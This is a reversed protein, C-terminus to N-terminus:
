RHRSNYWINCAWRYRRLRPFLGLLLFTKLLGITGHSQIKRASTVVPTSRITFRLGNKRGYRRLARSLELEEGAYHRESFGGVAQFIDKPVFFYCGAANSRCFWSHNWVATLLRLLLPLRCDFQIRAGGGCCGGTMLLNLTQKLLEGSVVTDADIFILYRGEAAEAGCNRVRAICHKEEHVVTAGFSLAITATSDTSCNDVVVIEGFASIGTMADRLCCLTKPLLEEENYAPIIVSYELKQTM